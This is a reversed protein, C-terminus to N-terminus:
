ACIYRKLHLNLTMLLEDETRFFTVKDYDQLIERAFLSDLVIIPSGSIKAELLPLGFSEISSAFLLIHNKYMESITKKSQLGIFSIPLKIKNVIKYMKKTARNKKFDFTFKINIKNKISEDMKLLSNIIFMHNKYDYYDSPYFLNLSNMFNFNFKKSKFNNLEPIKISIKEHNINYREIIIKKMWQSQTIIENVNKISYIIYKGLINKVYWLRLNKFISFRKESFPIAQQLYIKQPINKVLIRINNLSLIEDPNIKKVIKPLLIIYFLLRFFKSKKIKPYSLYKVNKYDKLDSLSTIIICEDDSKICENYFMNLITLAGGSSAATAYILKKM